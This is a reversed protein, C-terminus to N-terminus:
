RGAESSRKHALSASPRLGAILAAIRPGSRGDGYPNQVAGLRQRFSGDELARSLAKRVSDEDGEADLVNAARERGAQRPGVNVVPVHASPAEIIGSSSNGVMATCGKLLALYESRALNACHVLRGDRRDRLMANVARGGPDLNAGIALVPLGAALTAQLAQQVERSATTPSDSVPHMAFLLYPGAPLGVRRKVEDLDPLPSRLDDLGPAGVVHVRDPREGMRLIRDASAQTAALHVHALMTIAHRTSDDFGGSQEGGHIHVLIRGSYVAAAAAAFAEARDGLVVVVESSLREFADTLGVIGQGIARALDPLLDTGAQLPVEAAVPFEARVLDVTHGAEADFHMGTVVVQVSLGALPVLARLVPRLLGYDARSGTVVAIRTM